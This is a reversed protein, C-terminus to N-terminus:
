FHEELIWIRMGPALFLPAPRPWQLSNGISFKIQQTAELASWIGVVLTGRIRSKFGVGRGHLTNRSPVGVERLSYLFKSKLIKYFGKLIDEWIWIRMGPGALLADKLLVFRVTSYLFKSKSIKKEAM